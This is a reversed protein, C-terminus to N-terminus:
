VPSNNLQRNAHRGNENVWLRRATILFTVYRQSSREYSIVNMNTLLTVSTGATQKRRENSCSINARVTLVFLEHGLLHSALSNQEM